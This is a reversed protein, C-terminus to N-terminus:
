VHLTYMTLNSLCFSSFLHLIASFFSPNRFTYERYMLMCMLFPETPQVQLTLLTMSNAYQMIVAKNIFVMAMSAIGYSFAASLSCYCMDGM